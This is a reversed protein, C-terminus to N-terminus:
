YPQEKSFLAFEESRHFVIQVIGKNVNPFLFLGFNEVLYLLNKGNSTDDVIFADVATTSNRGAMM